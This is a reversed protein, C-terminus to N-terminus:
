SPCPRAHLKFRLSVLDQVKIMGGLVSFPTIRFDSQNFEFLGSVSLEGNATETELQAPVEFTRTTGHLTIGVTLRVGRPLTEIGSVRILAFPFAQTQLVKALMNARTGAIDSESPQTDLGAEVRLAPEDVTLEDLPLYLDARGEQPSVYGQAAHSAVVHDHGLRALSGSRRVTITVLSLAPDIRYIPKGQAAALEYKQSPFNEPAQREAPKPEPVTERIQPACAVILLALAAVAHTLRPTSM